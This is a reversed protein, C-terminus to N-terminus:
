AEVGPRRINLRWPAAPDRLTDLMFECRTRAAVIALHANCPHLGVRAEVGGHGTGYGRNRLEAIGFVVNTLGDLIKKSTQAGDVGGSISTPHVGLAEQARHVLKPVDEDGDCPVARERLIVKATSEVLEGAPVEGQRRM